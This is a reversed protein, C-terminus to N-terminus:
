FSALLDEPDLPEDLIGYDVALDILKQLNEPTVATEAYNIMVADNLMEPDYDLRETAIELAYDRDGNVEVSAEQIASSFSQIVEPNEAIYEETAIYVSSPVGQNGPVDAPMVVKTVGDAVSSSTLPETATIAEANGQQLLDFMQPGSAEIFDIQDSDVGAADVIAKINMWMQTNLGPVAVTRNVLDEPGDIDSDSLTLINTPGVDDAGGDTTQEANGAVIQLPMGQSRAQLFTVTDVVVIQQSGNMLNPVADNASKNTGPTVSLGHDEFNGGHIAGMLSLGNFSTPATVGLEHLEGDESAATETDAASSCATLGLGLALIAGVFARTRKPGLSLALSKVSSM